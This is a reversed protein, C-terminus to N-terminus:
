YLKGEATFEYENAEITEKIAEESTLYDYEKSLIIRYDELLDCRFESEMDDYEISENYQYGDAQDETDQYAAFGKRYAELYSAATQYTECSQGHEKSILRCVDELSETFEGEITNRYLDFSTIKLGIRDADDYTCDWWDWDLGESYWTDIIHQQAEESLEDFKFVETKVIDVRMAKVEM